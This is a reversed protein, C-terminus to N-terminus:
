DTLELDQTLTLLFECAAVGTAVRHDFTISLPLFRHEIPKGAALVLRDFVRGAGIIAIQPPVVVMEAHLGGVAGFNSLTITQGSLSQAAITRDAVNIKLEELMEQLKEPDTGTIDKLVPVFLGDATEMAIGVNVQPQLALKFADDDFRANLLPHATCAIGIARILRLVPRTGQPWHSIDAEGTVTARVVRANALAMREAMARRVSNLRVGTTTDAQVHNEVDNLQVVGGRGTPTVDLLNVGLERARQRARPSVKVDTQLTQMTPTSKPAEPLEGVISTVAVSERVPTTPGSQTSSGTDITVLIAGVQIREGVHANLTAIRGAHPAPIEVIAKDTEVAVLPQDAVVHDGLRVHWDVIEAETLGEGLDPLLFPEGASVPTSMEPM